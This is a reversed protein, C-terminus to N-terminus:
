SPRARADLFPAPRVPPRAWTIDSQSIWCQITHRHPFGLPAYIKLLHSFVALGEVFDKGLYLPSFIDRAAERKQENSKEGPVSREGSRRACSGGM